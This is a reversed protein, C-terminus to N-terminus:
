NAEWLGLKLYHPFMWVPVGNTGPQLPVTREALLQNARQVSFEFETAIKTADWGVKTRALYEIVDDRETNLLAQEYLSCVSTCFLKQQPKGHGKGILARCGRCRVEVLSELYERTEVPDM